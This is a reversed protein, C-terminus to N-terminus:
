VLAKLTMILFETQSNLFTKLNQKINDFDLETVNLQAM